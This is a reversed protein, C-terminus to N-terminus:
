QLLLINAMLCSWELEASTLIPLSRRYEATVQSILINSNTPFWTYSTFHNGVTWTVTSGIAMYRHYVLLEKSFFNLFPHAKLITNCFVFSVLRLRNLRWLHLDQNEFNPKRKTVMGDVSVLLQLWSFKKM